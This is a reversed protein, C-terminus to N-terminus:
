SGTGGAVSEGAAAEETADDAKRERNGTGQERGKEDIWLCVIWWVAVAVYVASNANFLHERIGVIRTYEAQSHAVVTKAIREWIFQIGLQSISVTMLGIAIQQVHSRFGAGFRSGAVVVLLGVLITVVDDLLMCKQALFQLVQLTSGGTLTKWAPWAGWFRLVVAGTVMVALAGNVWVIRRVGGFARRAVEVMVLLSLLAGLDALIIFMWAMTMQPLRGTLIRTTLLRFAVLIISASFLPFRRMRDRGMLVVILVLHSAFTLTWLIDLASYPFHFHM